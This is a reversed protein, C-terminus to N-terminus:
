YRVEIGVNIGQAWFNSERFFVAPRNSATPVAGPVQFNPIRTVDLVRDIQDGPRLVNNWYLFDYGVFARIRETIQYGVNLTVEPVFGFQSRHHHGINTSLALLGGFFNSVQGGPTIIRQGGGINVVQQTGGVALKGRADLSWPGHTFEADLGVQGGYFRNHTFFTDNIFLQDGGFMPVGPLVQISETISLGEDLDLYRFGALWDIRYNCGCCARRRVNLEAGLLQSPARVDIRGTALDPSTTRESSETGFNLSFFPRALVPFANSNAQFNISREGLFFFSGEIATPVCLDLWRGVTFRGGAREENDEHDSGFLITTGPGLIGFQPPASTTVLPPFRSERIWWQLYEASGYWGSPGSRAPEGAVPAMGCDPANLWISGSSELPTKGPLIPELVASSMPLSPGSAAVVQPAGAGFGSSGASSNLPEAGHTVEAWLPSPPSPPPPEQGKARVLPTVPRVSDYRYSAPVVETSSDPAQVSNTPNAPAMAVPRGLTAPMPRGLIPRPLETPEAGLCVSSLPDGAAASAVFYGLSLCGAWIGKM